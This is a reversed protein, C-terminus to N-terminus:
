LATTWLKLLEQRIFDMLLPQSRRLSWWSHNQLNDTATLTKYSPRCEICHESAQMLMMWMMMLLMWVGLPSPHILSRRGWPPSHHGASGGVAQGAQVSGRTPIYQTTCGEERCHVSVIHSEDLTVKDSLGVIDNCTVQSTCSIGSFSTWGAGCPLLRVALGPSCTSWQLSRLSCSSWWSWPLRSCSWGHNFGHNFRWSWWGTEFCMPLVEIVNGGYLDGDGIVLLLSHLVMRWVDDSAKVFFFSSWLLKMVTKIQSCFQGFQSSSLLLKSKVAATIQQNRIMDLFSIRNPGAAAFNSFDFSFKAFSFYFQLIWIQHRKM